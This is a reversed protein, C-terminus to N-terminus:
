EVSMATISLNKTDSCYNIAKKVTTFMGHIIGSSTSRVVWVVVKKEEETIKM